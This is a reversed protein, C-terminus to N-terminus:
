LQLSLLNLVVAHTSSVLGPEEALAALAKSPKLWRELRWRKVKFGCLFIVYISVQISVATNNKTELTRIKGNTNSLLIRRYLHM